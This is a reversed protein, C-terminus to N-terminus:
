RWFEVREREPARHHDFFAHGTDCTDHVLVGVNELAVYDLTTMDIPQGCGDCANDALGTGRCAVCWALEGLKLPRESRIWRISKRYAEIQELCAIIRPDGRWMCGDEARYLRVLRMTRRCAGYLARIRLAQHERFESGLCILIEGDGCCTRCPEHDIRGM